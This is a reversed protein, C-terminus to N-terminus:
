METEAGRRHLLIDAEASKTHEPGLMPWLLCLLLLELQLKLKGRWSAKVRSWITCLFLLSLSHFQPFQSLFAYFNSKPLL